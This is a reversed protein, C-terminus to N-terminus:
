AATVLDDEQSAHCQSNLVKVRFRWKNSQSPRGDQHVITLGQIVAKRYSRFKGPLSRNSLAHDPRGSARWRVWVRVSTNSATLLLWIALILWFPVRIDAPQVENFLVLVLLNTSVTKSINLKYNLCNGDWRAPGPLPSRLSLYATTFERFCALCRRLRL